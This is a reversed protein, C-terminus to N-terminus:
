ADSIGVLLQTILWFVAAGGALWLLLEGCSRRKNLLSAGEGDESHTMGAKMLGIVGGGPAPNQIEPDEYEGEWRADVSSSRATTSRAAGQAPRSKSRTRTEKKRQNKNRKKSM